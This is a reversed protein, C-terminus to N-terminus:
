RYDADVNEVLQTKMIDCLKQLDSEVRGRVLITDPQEFHQVASFFGDRTFVGCLCSELLRQTFRKDWTVGAMITEKGTETFM